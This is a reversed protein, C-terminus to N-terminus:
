LKGYKKQMAAFFGSRRLEELVSGDVYDAPNRSGTGASIKLVNEVGTMSINMDPPSQARFDEYSIEIIKPNKINLERTLVAKARAADTLALYNGEIVARMFRVVLERREKLDGRRVVVGSFLWPIKEAALDILINVGQERAQSTTPENIATAKIEGTRVAALRKAGGGYEKVTVDARTMGFRELALTVTSDSESGTTSVGIVGGKLDAASKVGPATAIVFRIVNSMSGILRLDGGSTNAQVVSSMGVRMLDINGAQLEKAGRTGGGMNVIEVKLGNAEYFGGEQAMWVPLVTNVADTIGVRFPVLQQAAAPLLSVAVVLAALAIRISVKM